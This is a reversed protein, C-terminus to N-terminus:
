NELLCVGDFMNSPEAGVNFKLHRQFIIHTFFYIQKGTILDLQRNPLCCKLPRAGGVSFVINNVENDPIDILFGM